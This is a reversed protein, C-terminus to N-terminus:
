GSCCTRVLLAIENEKVFPPHNAVSPGCFAVAVERIDVEARPHSPYFTLERWLELATQFLPCLRPFPRSAM